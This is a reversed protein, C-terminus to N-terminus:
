KGVNDLTVPYIEWEFTHRIYANWQMQEHINRWEDQIKDQDLERELENDHSDDDNDDDSDDKGPEFWYDRFQDYEDGEHMRRTLFDKIRWLAEREVYAEAADRTAFLRVSGIDTTHGGRDRTINLFIVSFFTKDDDVDSCKARKAPPTNDDDEFKGSRKSTADAMVYHPTFHTALRADM